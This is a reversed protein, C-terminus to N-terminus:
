LLDRLREYGAKIEKGLDKTAEKIKKGAVGVEEGIQDAKNKIDEQKVKLQQLKKELHEWEERAEMSGLHIKLKIQDRQKELTEVLQEFNEELDDKISM